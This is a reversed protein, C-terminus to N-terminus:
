TNHSIYLSLSLDILFGINFVTVHQKIEGAELDAKEQKRILFHMLNNQDNECDEKVNLCDPNSRSRLPVIPAGILIYVFM